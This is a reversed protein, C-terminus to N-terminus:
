LFRRADGPGVSTGGIAAGDGAVGDSACASAGELEETSARKSM